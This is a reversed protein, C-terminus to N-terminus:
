RWDAITKVVDLRSIVANTVDDTSIGVMCRFDIPCDRLFCPSCRVPKQIVASNEGLPGTLEPSTSGFIGVVPIGLAYALHMPGTDNTLVVRCRKILTCLELLSTKGATNVLSDSDFGVSRMQQEIKAVTEVDGPGGLLVWRCDRVHSVRQIVDVFREPMWRKAPGYEAGANIGIVHRGDDKILKEITPLEENALWIKPAVFTSDGGLFDILELYQFVQHRIVKIRKIRFLKKAAIVFRRRSRMKRPKVITDTLLCKRGNGAFGVRQSIGARWCDMASRFSNTFLLAADFKHPRLVKPDVRDDFTIVDNVFPNFRWIDYLKSPCLLAIHAGPQFERLRQVAPMCMVSDGIWNPARVLIRLGSGRAAAFITSQKM